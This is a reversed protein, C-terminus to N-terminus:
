QDIVLYSSTRAMLPSQAVNEEARPMVSPAGGLELARVMCSKTRVKMAMSGDSCVRCRLVTRDTDVGLLRRLMSGSMRSRVMATSSASGSPSVKSQTSVTDISSVVRISAARKSKGSSSRRLSVRHDSTTNAMGSGPPTTSDISCFPSSSM